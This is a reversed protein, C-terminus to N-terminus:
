VNFFPRTENFLARIEAESLARNWAMVGGMRSGNALENTTVTGLTMTASADSASPSTIAGDFTVHTDNIVARSAGAGGAENLVMVWFSWVTTPISILAGTALGTGAANFITMGFGGTTVIQIGNTGAGSRTAVIGAAGGTYYLWGAMTWLANDKHLNNMWTENASDYTFYDGGDFLFYAGLSGASGTFTPDTATASGDAGLFFDYGNGSRDLWSQGSSYSLADRADLCLQRGSLLGLKRSAPDLLPIRCGRLIRM